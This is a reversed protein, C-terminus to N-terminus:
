AIVVRKGLAISCSICRLYHPISLIFYRTLRANLVGSLMSSILKKSITMSPNNSPIIRPSKIFKTLNNITTIIGITRNNM